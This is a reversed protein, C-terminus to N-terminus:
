REAVAQLRPLSGANRTALRLNGLAPAVHRLYGTLGKVVGLMGYAGLAQMLRQAAAEWFSTQFRGWDMGEGDLAYAHELLELRQGDSFAVYPDCLLSALDYFRNGFRMGQFDILVPEVGGAGQRLMVNQSQLDRHVLRRRGALLRGALADLESELERGEGDELGVGRLVGLFNTKFYDREWRYYAPSFEEMLRVRGKPFDREPHSHLRHVAELTKRYLAGRVEWPADRLAWLDTEGLDEQLVMGEGGEDRHRIVSPVPVGVGALFAAIGAYYSNEVRAAGYHTLIASGGHSGVDYRARYYARDSGRGALPRLELADGPALGLAERVFAALEEPSKV